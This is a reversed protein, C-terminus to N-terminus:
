EKFVVKNRGTEKAEYLGDDARKIFSDKTDTEKAMTVGISITVHRVNVFCAEDILQRITEAFELAEDKSAPLMCLFEEGGWRGFVYDEKLESRVLNVTGRLVVDGADHGFTDNVQKFHDIDMFLLAFEKKPDTQKQEMAESIKKDLEWRNFVQTLRDTTAIRGLEKNFDDLEKSTSALFTLIRDIFPIEVNQSQSLEISDDFFNTDISRCPIIQNRHGDEKMGVAVLASNLDGGQRDPTVMIEAYGTTFSMQPVVSKYRALEEQYGQKLFRMRNGCEFVYLAEPAFDKLDRVSQSSLLGLKVPDAYSLRFHEGPYVDSTFRIAGKDDCGSPVRAMLIDNRHLILPFECVNQVFYRGPKVNLYKEYIEVAPKGDIETIIHDGDVKTIAMERGIEQWGLNHDIYVSLEDSCFIVAVIANDYCNKGYVHTQNLARISRGAKAGFIPLEHHLFERTYTSITSRNSAYMIQMACADPLSELIENTKRGAVFATTENLDYELYTLRTKFFYTVSLQVPKSSIDYKVDAINAATIGTVCAKPCSKSIAVLIAQEDMDLRPNFMQILVSTASQYNVGTSIETLIPLIEEHSSFFYTSQIM